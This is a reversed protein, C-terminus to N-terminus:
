LGLCPTPRQAASIERPRQGSPLTKQLFFFPRQAPSIECPRQASHKAFFLRGSRPASRLFFLPQQARPPPPSGIHVNPCHKKYLFFGAAARPQGFPAITNLSFHAVAHPPSRTHGSPATSQFFFSPQQAPSNSHKGFRNEVSFEASKKSCTRARSNQM